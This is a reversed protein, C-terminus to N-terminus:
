QDPLSGVWDWSFVRVDWSPDHNLARPDLPVPRVVLRIVLTQPHGTVRFWSHGSFQDWAERLGTWAFNDLSNPDDM